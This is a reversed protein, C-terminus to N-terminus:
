KRKRAMQESQFEDITASIFLFAEAKEATLEKADFKYGMDSLRKRNLYESFYPHVNYQKIGRCSLRAEM